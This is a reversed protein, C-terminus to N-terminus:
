SNFSTEVVSYAKGSSAHIFQLDDGGQTIIGVHGVRRVQANSGTFLIVDGPQASELNVEKGIKTYGYSSRPVAIQFHNFVYM